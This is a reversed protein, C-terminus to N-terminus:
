DDECTTSVRLACQDGCMSCTDSDSGPRLERISRARAPDLSLAYQKEWDLDRRAIGMELDRDRRGLKVMDGVHAAIRAAMVGDRVDAAFPLGLHESPTVYCIFDTGFAAAWASGIAATIHDYGPAIDTTIPGLMYFPKGRSLSKQLVVNAEIQDIPIHGPGELMAQVGADRAREALEVNILLEQIQARDTADSIAGARMGNGLSLIVDYQHMIELLRDFQEFLPNERGQASMWSIMFAGGRSVLGGDRGGQKQLAGVSLRNVGCHIAMFGIGDRAQKEIVEFLLEDTMLSSSGFCSRAESSAQYLPVSGVPLTVAALIARRIEDLDGATSLEMLTDAGSSEAVRAKELEMELDLMDSSTGISANVKTRFGKGIGVATDPRGNGSAIVVTGDVIGERVDGPTLGEKEAVIEMERTVQGARASELITVM